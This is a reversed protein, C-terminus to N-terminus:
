KTPRDISILVVLKTLMLHQKELKSQLDTVITLIKGTKEEQKLAQKVEELTLGTKPTITLVM